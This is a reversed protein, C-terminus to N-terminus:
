SDYFADLKGDHRFASLRMPCQQARRVRSFLALIGLWISSADLTSNETDKCPETTSVATFSLASPWSLLKALVHRLHYLYDAMATIASGAVM